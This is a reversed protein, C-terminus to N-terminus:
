PSVGDLSRALDVLISGAAVVEDLDVWEDDGHAQEIAGPGFVITPVGARSLKSGDTGYPVREPRSPVDRAALVGSMARVVGADPATYMGGDLLLERHVRADIGRESMSRLFAALEALVADPLDRPRIRLDVGIRCSDPVVNIATGGQITTVALIRDPEGASSEANAESNWEDLLQVLELADRIANHGEAPRSTHAARGRVELEVRVVGNHETVARLQTPELVVAADPLVGTAIYHTIGRFVFEEDIAGVFLVDTHELPERSLEALALLAGAIGGKVDCAGRGYMREGVVAARPLQEGAPLGVTDIHAEIMLTQRPDRAALRAIVNRRGDVVEPTTVACGLARCFEAIADGVGNEGSSQADYAPNVSPIDILAALLSEVSSRDLERVEPLRTM